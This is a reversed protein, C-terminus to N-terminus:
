IKPRRQDTEEKAELDKKKQFYKHSVSLDLFLIITPFEPSTVCSGRLVKLQFCQQM